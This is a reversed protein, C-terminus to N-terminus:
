SHLSRRTNRNYDLRLEEIPTLYPERCPWPYELEDLFAIRHFLLMSSATSADSQELFVFATTTPARGRRNTLSFRFMNGFFLLTGHGVFSAIYWMDSNTHSLTGVLSRPGPSLPMNQEDSSCASLFVLWHRGNHRNYSLINSMDKVTRRTCWSVTPMVKGYGEPLSTCTHLLPGRM